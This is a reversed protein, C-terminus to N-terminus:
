PNAEIQTLLAQNDASPSLAMAIKAEDAASQRRGLALFAKALNYHALYSRPRLVIARQYDRVAQDYQQREAALYGLAELVPGNDPQELAVREALSRAEQIKGMKIYGWVVHDWRVAPPPFQRGLYLSTAGILAASMGFVPLQWRRFNRVSQAIGDIWIGSCVALMPAAHFRFRDEAWFVAVTFWSVFIPAAILPWRRDEVALWVLGALGMALLWAMPPPLLKLIPSFLREEASSRNNPVETDALFAFSKRAMDGLVQGPHQRMYALTEDRWYRDVEPPSLSRGTRSAAEAAYGRWIESPHSYNVFLPIWIASAPNQANYVQNLVIGGNHPLPSLGGFAHFNRISWPALSLAMGLIMIGARVAWASPKRADPLLLAPLILLLLTSRLAIGVGCFVGFCGWALKRDSRYLALAGVVWWTLFSAVCIEKLLAACFMIATSTVGYLLAGYLGARPRGLLRGIVLIGYATATDVLTQLLYVAFLNVGILKFVAGLLYGYGPDMFTFEPSDEGVGAAVAAGFRQYYDEDPGPQYSLPSQVASSLHMVRLALVFALVGFVVVPKLVPLRTRDASAALM